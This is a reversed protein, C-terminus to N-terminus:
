KYWQNSIKIEKLMHIDKNKIIYVMIGIDLAKSLKLKNNISM